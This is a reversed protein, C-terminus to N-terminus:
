KKGTVKKAAGGNWFWAKKTDYSYWNERGLNYPLWFQGNMARREDHELQTASFVSEVQRYERWPDEQLQKPIEM